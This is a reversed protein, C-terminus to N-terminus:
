QEVQRTILRIHTLIIPKLDHTRNLIGAIGIAFEACLCEVLERDSELSHEVPPKEKAPKEGAAEKRLAKAEDRTTQPTVKGDEIAQELAPASMLSLEYVTELNPPLVNAQSRNSLAPNAAMAVIKRAWSSTFPLAEAVPEAHDSFLKGFEGHPLKAKAEILSKGLAIARELSKRLSGEFADWKKRLGPLVQEAPVTADLPKKKGDVEIDLGGDANRKATTVM